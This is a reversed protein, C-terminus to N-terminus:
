LAGTQIFRRIKQVLLPLSDVWPVNYRTCIIDLNGTRYFGPARCVICPAKRGILLGLELLSIPAASDADFYVITLDADEQGQLEWEVQQRFQPTSMEQKWSSDWDSRRPNLLTGPASELMEALEQQWERATGMDIVGALFIRPRETLGYSHPAEIMKM